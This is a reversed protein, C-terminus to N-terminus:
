SAVGSNIRPLLEGLKGEFDANAKKWGGHRSFPITDFHEPAILLNELLHNQILKLWMDQQPTFEKGARIKEIARDVREEASILPEKNAAHRVLSILDALDYHYAKRLNDVTYKEPQEELKAKLVALSRTDFNEPRQLLITLAEVHSPNDHVFHEFSQIYDEPKLDRGDATRFHYTSKVTDEVGEAIIFTRSARPYVELLNQFTPNRLLAMTGRWDEELMQPLQRALAGIDGDPIFKAFLTRGEGSVEKAIRQLRKVLVSVNYDRDRNAYLADIVDLVSRSPKEPPEYLFDVANRFYDLLGLADFVMFHSKGIEDCKRTGRGLMQEFLIRSKVPRLFLLAELRPIDVGTTLMDVTVSVMPLPRNRFERIRQLAKDVNGTIKAAFDDGQGGEDRLIDVLQNAHSTHQLDNVAFVLTKPFRGYQREFERAHVLFEKVIKRNSDPATIRREIEAADFEREDELSDFEHKGTQTDVLQVGEGEKLFVGNMKVDSEIIVPDYDVLYGERVAQEYSYRFVVDKFYAKTHLAPTATLGVKVADFHDLVERWKGEETATYGRHCEDAIILDFAHIPIEEKQAEADVELDGTDVGREEPGFLNVRMRQITCVYVFSTGPTPHSLYGPPMEKPDFKVHEDLDERQLKQSYVEYIRDFKLGPEPEFQAMEGVAQAALARRDVLFLVRRAYGSKMLRYLLAITTVTKGTGTAMAVLMTRKGELITEEVAEIADKQYPRLWDFKVDNKRLWEESSAPDRGLLEKLGEPSHFGSVQRSRSDSKRLDRFWFVTGNTSYGFPIHYQGFAFPSGEIDRSYREAQRLVEQPGVSERKAEVAAIPKSDLFLIYDAPGSSTPYETEVAEPHSSGKAYTVISPWGAAAMAKDIRERRTRAEDPGATMQM